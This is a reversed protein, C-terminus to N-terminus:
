RRILVGLTLVKSIRLKPPWVFTPNSAFPEKSLFGETKKDRVFWSATAFSLIFVLLTGTVVAIMIHGDTASGFNATVNSVFLLQVGVILYAM